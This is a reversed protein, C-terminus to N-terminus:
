ASHLPLGQWIRQCVASDNAPIPKDFLWKFPTVVPSTTFRVSTELIAKWPVSFNFHKFSGAVNIPTQLSFIQPTKSHPTLYLNFTKNKYNAHFQGTVQIRTTDLLIDRQNMIGHNINIGAAVCNVVSHDHHIFNPIIADTLSVAWLDILNAQYAKPWVAFGIFGTANNLISDPTNAVSNLHFETSLLGHMKTTPDVRRALIGYDFNVVKGKLHINFKNGKPQITGQIHVDGGPVKVNLPDLTLKGNLLTLGLNGAGLWDNGSRVEGVKLHFQGNFLNLGKPSILLAPTNKKQQIPQSHKPLWAQWHKLKFDNIQIFPANLNLKITPRHDRFPLYAGHGELQSHSVKLNIHNLFYGQNTTSMVAKLNIPGYPPLSLGIFPDLQNLNPLSAQVKLNLHKFNIPFSMNSQASFTMNGLDVNLSVPVNKQNQNIRLLSPATATLNVPIRNTMGTLTLTTETIPSTQFTGKSLHIDLSKGTYVNPLHLQGGYLKASLNAQEMLQLVTKGSLSLQLQARDLGMNLQNTINFDSLIQGVNPHNVSLNLTAGLNTSNINFAINGNYQGNAYQMSFPSTPMKGNTLNGSFQIHQALQNLWQLRDINLALHANVLKLPHALIPVNLNIGQTPITQQVKPLTKPEIFHAIQTLNLDSFQGTLSVFPTIQNPSWIANVQGQSGMLQADKIKLHIGNTQYTLIGVLNLKGKANSQTGLWPSLLGVQQSNAMLTFHSGVQWKTGKLLGSAQVDIAPSKINLKARWDQKAIIESLTGASANIKVPINLLKGQINSSFPTNMGANLQANQISFQAKKGWHANASDVSLALQTNDIWSQLNTGETTLKLQASKLHGKASSIGTLWQAMEGLSSNKANLTFNVHSIWGTANINAFGKFPVNAINAQMPANLVGNKGDVTLKIGQIPTGVGIIKGVNITLHTQTKVLWQNLAKQLPSPAPEAMFMMPMPPKPQLWPSLDVIPITLNGEINQKKGWTFKLHGKGQTVPSNITFNTVSLTNQDFAIHTKIEFPVIPHLNIGFLNQLVNVNQWKMGLNAHTIGGSSPAIYGNKLTFKAGSFDGQGTLSGGKGNILDIINGQLNFQYPQGFANGQTTLEWTKGQPKLVFQDLQANYFANTKDNEYSVSVNKLTLDKTVNLQWQTNSSASPKSPAFFQWNVKGERNETLHIQTKEMTLHDIQIQHQLLPLLNIKASVYGIKAMPQWPISKLNAVTVDNLIIKPDFSLNLSIPGNLEINRNLTKSLWQAISKQHSAIPINIGYSLIAIIFIVFSVVSIFGWKLISRGLFSTTIETKAMFIVGFFLLVINEIEYFIV